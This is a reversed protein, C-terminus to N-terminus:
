EGNHKLYSDACSAWDDHDISCFPCVEDELEPDFCMPPQEECPHPELLSASVGDMEFSKNFLMVMTILYDELESLEYTYLEHALDVTKFYDKEIHHIQILM